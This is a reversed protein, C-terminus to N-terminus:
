DANCFRSHLESIRAGHWRLAGSADFNRDRTAADAAQSTQKALFTEIEQLATKIMKADPHQNGFIGHLDCLADFADFLNCLAPGHRRLHRETDAIRDYAAQAINENTTIDM